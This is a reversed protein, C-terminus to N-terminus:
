VWGIHVTSASLLFLDERRAIGLPNHPDLLATLAADDEASLTGPALERVWKLRSTVFDRVNPPVPAPVDLLFSKSRTEKFGARGLQFPWDVTPRPVGPAHHASLRQGIATSGVADLRAALGRAGIGCEDPMYRYPLGGEVVALLGGPRLCAALARMTREQDAVHHLVRSTVILDARPLGDLSGDLDGEAVGIRDGLGLRAARELVRPLLGAANDIATVRADSFQRALATSWVGPGSGIDLIAATSRGARLEALWAIAAEIYPLEVEGGRELDDARAAWDDIEPAGHHHHHHHRHM